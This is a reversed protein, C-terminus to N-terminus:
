EETRLHSASPRTHIIPLMVDRDITSDRAPWINLVPTLLCDPASVLGPWINDGTRYLHLLVYPINYYTTIPTVLVSWRNNNCSWYNRYFYYASVSQALQVCGAVKDINLKESRWDLGSSQTGSALTPQSGGPWPLPTTNKHRSIIFIQNQKPWFRNQYPSLQLHCLYCWVPGPKQEAWGCDAQWGVNRNWKPKEVDLCSLLPPRHPWFMM